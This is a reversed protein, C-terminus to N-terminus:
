RRCRRGTAPIGRAGGRTGGATGAGRPGGSRCRIPAAAPDATTSLGVLLAAVRDGAALEYARTTVVFGTPVPFGAASLIGLNLAKGGVAALSTTGAHDFPVVLAAM